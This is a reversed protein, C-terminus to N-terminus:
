PMRRLLEAGHRGHGHTPLAVPTKFLRPGAEWGEGECSLTHLPEAAPPPHAQVALRISFSLTPRQQTHAPARRPKSQERPPRSSGSRGGGPPGGSHGHPRGLGAPPVLLTQSQSLPQCSRPTSVEPRGVLPRHPLEHCPLGAPAPCPSSHTGGGVISRAWVRGRRQALDGEEERLGATAGHCSLFTLRHRERELHGSLAGKSQPTHPCHLGM